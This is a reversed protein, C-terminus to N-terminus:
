FQFLLFWVTSGTLGSKFIESGTIGATLLDNSLRLGRKVYEFLMCFGVSLWKAEESDRPDVSTCDWITTPPPLVELEVGIVIGITLTYTLLMLEVLVESGTPVTGPELGLLVDVEYIPIGIPPHVKSFM